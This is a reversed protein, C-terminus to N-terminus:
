LEGFQELENKIRLFRSREKGTVFKRGSAHLAVIFEVDTGEELDFRAYYIKQILIEVSLDDGVKFFRQGEDRLELLIEGQRTTLEERDSRSISELFDTAFDSRIRAYERDALLHGALLRFGAPDKRIRDIEIWSAMHWSWNSVGRLLV